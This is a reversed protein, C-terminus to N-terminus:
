TGRRVISAVAAINFTTQKLRQLALGENSILDQQSELTAGLLARGDATSDFELPVGLAGGYRM